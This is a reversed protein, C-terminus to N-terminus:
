CRGCTKLCNKKVYGNSDCYIKWSPCSGNNDKCNSSPKKTTASTTTPAETPRPAPTTKAGGETCVGCTKRCNNQVFWRGCDHAWMEPCNKVYNDVCGPETTPPRTRIPPRTYGDTQSTAGCYMRNLQIKDIKSLEDRQGILRRKSPDRTRITYQKRNLAFANNRYHMISLFDYETDLSDITRTTYKDFNFKDGPKINNWMIEVYDDRDPRSQEHFFGLAHGIEHIATGKNWCGYGLSIENGWSNRGVNSFCGGKLVFHMYPGRSPLRDVQQFRICTYKEYDAIAHKITEIAYGHSNFDEDIYYKILDVKGNTKWHSSKISAFTNSGEKRKSRQETLAALQDPSLMMDGEFFKGEEPQGGLVVHSGPLVLATLFFLSILLHHNEM